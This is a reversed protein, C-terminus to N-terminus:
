LCSAVLYLHIETGLLLADVLFCNFPLKGVNVGVLFYSVVLASWKLKLFKHFYFLSFTFYKKKM